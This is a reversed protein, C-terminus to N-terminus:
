GHMYPVNLSVVEAFGWRLCVERGEEYAEIIESDRLDDYKNRDGIASALDVDSPERGLQRRMVIRVKIDRHKQTTRIYTAWKHKM